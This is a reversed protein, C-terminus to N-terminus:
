AAALMAAIEEAPRAAYDRDIEAIVRKRLATGYHKRAVGLATPPAIVIVPCNSDRAKAELTLIAVETFSNEGQQHWDTQAVASRRGTTSSFSRGPRDSGLDATAALKREQECLLELSCGLGRGANRYLAMRGGDMALVLTGHEILM